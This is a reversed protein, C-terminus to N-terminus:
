QPIQLVVRTFGGPEYWCIREWFVEFDEGIGM